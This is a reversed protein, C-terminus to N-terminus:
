SEPNFKIQLDHGIEAVLNLMQQLRHKSPVILIHDDTYALINMLM